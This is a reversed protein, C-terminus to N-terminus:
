SKPSRSPRSTLSHIVPGRAATSAVELPVMTPESEARRPEDSAHGMPQLKRARVAIVVQYDPDRHDLEEVKLEETALGHLFAVATLVNGYSAVEIGSRPFCETFLRRASQDTFRWFEGSRDMDTRAIPSICPFTALLVGGPSLIRHLTQVCARVDYIYQLTQTFVICDYSNSVLHDAHNLDAVITADKNGEQVDLVDSHTVRSGGFKRTYQNDGVELVRGRINSSNQSLFQEIYYRDIPLGRDFGFHRSVPTVRRLYGWRVRYVLPSLSSSRFWKALVERSHMPLFRSIAMRVIAKPDKLGGFTGPVAEEVNNSGMGTTGRWVQGIINGAQAVKTM